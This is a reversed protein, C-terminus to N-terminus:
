TYCNYSSWKKRYGLIMCIKFIIARTMGSINDLTTYSSNPPSGNKKLVTSSNWERWLMLWASRVIYDFGDKRLVNVYNSPWQSSQAQLFVAEWKIQEYDFRRLPRNLRIRPEFTVGTNLPSIMFPLCADRDKELCQAAKPYKAEYTNVFDNFHRAAEDKNAAQWIQHM